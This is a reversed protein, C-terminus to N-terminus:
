GNTHPSKPNTVGRILPDFGQLAAELRKAGLSAPRLLLQASAHADRAVGDVRQLGLPVIRREIEGETDGDGKAERHIIYEDVRM